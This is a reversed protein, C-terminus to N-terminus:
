VRRRCCRGGILSGLNWDGWCLAGRAHRSVARQKVIHVCRLIQGHEFAARTRLLPVAWSLAKVRLMRQERPAM